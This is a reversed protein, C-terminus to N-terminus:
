KTEKNSRLTFLLVEFNVNAGYDLLVQVIDLSNRRSALHLPASGDRDQFNVDAGAKLLSKVKDAEGRKIVKMLGRSKKTTKDLAM